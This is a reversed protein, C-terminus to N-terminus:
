KCSTKIESMYLNIEKKQVKVYISKHTAKTQGIQKQQLGLLNTSDLPPGGLITFLAQVLCVHICPLHKWAPLSFKPCKAATISNIHPVCRSYIDRLWLTCSHLCQDCEWIRVWKSCCNLHFLKNWCTINKIYNMIYEYQNQAGRMEANPIYFWHTSYMWHNMLTLGWKRPRLLEVNYSYFCFRSFQM